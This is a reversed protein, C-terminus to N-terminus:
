RVYRARQVGLKRMKSQLTCPKMGLAAAAGDDGYLKGGSKELAESIASKVADNLTRKGLKAPATARANSEPLLLTKGRSLILAREVYNELERVNGPWPAACLTSLQRQSIEPVERGLRGCMRRLKDHVLAAIDEPRERLPPVHVPFVSLRYFLDARFRGDDMMDELARHTAAVVRVDVAIPERGGVREIVGEQLARLLKAQVSPPLEGVEDLFLTGGHAREFRGIHRANAGTFAGQEHGFLESEILTEPLAACSVAVFPGSARDSRAHVHRALLEKGTGSEGRILVATPHPAVLEIQELVEHMVRSAAVIPRAPESLELEAVRRQLVSKDRYARRSLAALKAVRDCGHCATGVICGIAFLRETEAAIAPMGADPAFRLTLEGLQMAGLPVPVQVTWQREVRRVLLENTRASSPVAALEHLGVEARWVFGTRSDGGELPPLALEVSAAGLDRVLAQGLASALGRRHAAASTERALRGLWGHDLHKASEV